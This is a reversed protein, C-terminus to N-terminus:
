SNEGILDGKMIIVLDREDLDWPSTIIAAQNLIRRDFDTVNFLIPYVVRYLTMRRITTEHFKRILM